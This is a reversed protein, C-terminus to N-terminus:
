LRELITEVAVKHDLRNFKNVFEYTNYSSCFTFKERLEIPLVNSAYHYHKAEDDFRKVRNNPNVDPNVGNSMGINKDSMYFHVLERGDIIISSMDCGFIYIHDYGMWLGIQMGVFVSSRGIHVGTLVDRSFGTGKIDKVYITNHREHKIAITNIITGSYESWLDKYRKFQSQDCFLWHKTPWIYNVPTNISMVDILDHNKFKSLNIEAVSPGNGVIILTKGIYADKHKLLKTKQSETLDRASSYKILPQKHQKVARSILIGKPKTIIQDNKHDSNFRKIVKSVSVLHKQSRAQQPTKVTKVTKVSPVQIAAKLVVTRKSVLQRVPRVAPKAIFAVM